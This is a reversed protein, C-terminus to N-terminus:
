YWSSDLKAKTIKVESRAYKSVESAAKAKVRFAGESMPEIILDNNSDNVVDIPNNESDFYTVQFHLDAYAQESTNKLRGITTVCAECGSNNFQIQIDSIGIVSHAEYVPQNSFQDFSDEMAQYTVLWYGVFGISFLVIAQPPFIARLISQPRSCHPCWTAGKKIDEKCTRCNKTGEM